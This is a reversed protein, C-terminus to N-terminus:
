GCNEVTITEGIEIVAYYGKATPGCNIMRSVGLTDTGRAEHIHGCVVVDPQYRDIFTRIASSGVHTGPFIQDLKTKRPPAHPVFVKWRVSKIDNWGSEARRLIEDESIEYPTHLPSFPAASVGFFGVERICIGKANISCGTRAVADDIEPSDMNGSVVLIPKGCTQFQKIAGKAEMPSGHTTVDGCILILDYATERVLIEEAKAYAGHIDSLALIRM